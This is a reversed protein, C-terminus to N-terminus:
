TLVTREKANYEVLEDYIDPDSGVSNRNHGRPCRTFFPRIHLRKSDELVEIRTTVPFARKRISESVTRISGNFLVDCVDDIEFGRRPM